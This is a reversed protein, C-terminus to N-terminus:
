ARPFLCDLLLFLVCSVSGGVFLMIGCEYISTSNINQGHQCHVSFLPNERSWIMVLQETSNRAM